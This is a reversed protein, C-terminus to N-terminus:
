VKTVLAEAQTRRCSIKSGVKSNSFVHSSLKTSCNFTNFSLSHKVTLYCLAVESAIVTHEERTEEKM